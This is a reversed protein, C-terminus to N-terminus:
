KQKASNYDNIAEEISYDSDYDIKTRPLLKWKCGIGKRVYIFVNNIQYKDIPDLSEDRYKFKWRVKYHLKPHIKNTKFLIEHMNFRFWGMAKALQPNHNLGRLRKEFQIRIDWPSNYRSERDPDCDVCINIKTKHSKPFADRM